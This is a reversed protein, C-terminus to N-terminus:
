LLLANAFHYINPYPGSFSKSLHSHFSECSNNTRPLEEATPALAWLTPPFRSDPAVYTNLTYDAFAECPSNQPANAMIDSFADEYPAGGLKITPAKQSM